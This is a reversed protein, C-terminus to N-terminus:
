RTSRCSSGLWMKRLSKLLQNTPSDINADILRRLPFSITTKSARLKQRHMFTYSLIAESVRPSPAVISLPLKRKVILIKQSHSWGLARTRNKNAIKEQSTPLSIIKWQRSFPPKYSLLFNIALFSRTEQKFSCSMGWQICRFLLRQCRKGCAQNGRSKQLSRKIVPWPVRLSLDHSLKPM